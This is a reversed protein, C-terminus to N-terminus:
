KVKLKIEVSADWPLYRKLVMFGGAKRDLHIDFPVWFGEKECELRSEDEDKGVARFGVHAV